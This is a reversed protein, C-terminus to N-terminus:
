NLPWEDRAQSVRPPDALVYIFNREAFLCLRNSFIKREKYNKQKELLGLRVGRVNFSFLFFFFFSLLFSPFHPEFLTKPYFIIFYAVLGTVHLWEWFKTSSSDSINLKATSWVNGPMSSPIFVNSPFNHSVCVRIHNM